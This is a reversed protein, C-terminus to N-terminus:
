AVADCGLAQELADGLVVSRLGDHLGIKASWGLDHLKSGSLAYRMDPKPRAPPNEVLEYRLERGLLLAIKQAVYLNSWERPPYINFRGSRDDAIVGGRELVAVTAASVDDAHIYLRSAPVGDRAHIQVVEGRVIKEICLPIFKEQYQGIGYTNACHTVCIRLGYQHAYAPCLAEAGAKTAAYANEPEWRSHEDFSQGERAPGFVEDTSFYLTKADPQHHRVYELLNCTGLVNDMVAGIPDRIAREVHSNAALHAIYKFPRRLPELSRQAPNIPAKLDHFISHFRDTHARKLTALRELAGAEDLRDLSVVSYDTRELLFQCLNGGIFGAGGTVLIRDAM